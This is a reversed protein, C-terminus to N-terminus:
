LLLLLLLMTVRVGECWVKQLRVVTVTVRVGETTEGM